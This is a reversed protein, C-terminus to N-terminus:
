CWCGENCVGITSCVYVGAQMTAIAILMEDLGIAERLVSLMSWSIPEAICCAGCIKCWM